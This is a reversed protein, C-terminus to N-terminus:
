PNQQKQKGKSKDGSNCVKAGITIKQRPARPKEEAKIWPMVTQFVSEVLDHQNPLLRVDSCFEACTAYEDRTVKDSIIDLQSSSLPCTSNLSDTLDALVRAYLSNSHHRLAGLWIREPGCLRCIYEIKPSASLLRFDEEPLQECGAHVWASCCNCELKM